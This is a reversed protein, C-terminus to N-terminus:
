LNHEVLLQARHVAVHTVRYQVPTRHAAVEVNDIWLVPRQRDINLRRLLQPEPVVGGMRSRKRLYDTTNFGAMSKTIRGTRRWVEPLNALVTAPYAIGAALIQELQRSVVVGGGRELM